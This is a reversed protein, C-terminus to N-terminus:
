EAPVVYKIAKQGKSSFHKKLSLAPKEIWMWSLHSLAISIILASFALVATHIMPMLAFLTQLVVWHYIYIGYSIDTTNQLRELPACKVYALWFLTYGLAIDLMLEIDGFKHNVAAAIFLVPILPWYLKIRDQYAYFAAGLSYAIGFRLLSKGTEPLSEMFGFQIAASYATACLVFQGAIMWPKRLMGFAFLIATGIYALVEYRLTWLTASALQDPNNEFVGPLVMETDVFSLVKFPQMLVQSHTLYQPLSLSTMLAGIIFAVILVHVLLAPFIRLVRAAAYEKIDGRYLISKTVLFGSAIFFMNVAIYSPTYHFFLRPEDGTDGSHLMLAHGILVMVAMLIRLPTFFNDHGDRLKVPSIIKSFHSM